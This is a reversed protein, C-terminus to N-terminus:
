CSTLGSLENACILASQRSYALFTGRLGFRRDSHPEALSWLGLGMFLELFCSKYGTRNLGIMGTAVATGPAQALGRMVFDSFSLFVGSILAMLLGSVLLIWTMLDVGM